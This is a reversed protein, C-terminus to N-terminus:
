FYMQPRAGVPVTVGCDKVLAAVHALQQTGYCVIGKLEGCPLQGRILAEAQYRDMKEPDSPDYRFDRRQLIGWDIRALDNLDVSFQATALKAHKDTFAYSLGSAAISRLSTVYIVIDAMPVRAIGNHGTKINYLMPSHSTFYFPVYDSLTSGTSVEVARTRRKEILDLNGINRFQPNVLPSNRCQLGHELDWALNDIHTIRFIWAHAADLVITM